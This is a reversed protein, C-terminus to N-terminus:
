RPPQKCLHSVSQGNTRRDTPSVSQSVAHKGAQESGTRRWDSYLPDNMPRGSNKLEEEDSKIAKSASIIIIMSGYSSGSSIIIGMMEKKGM